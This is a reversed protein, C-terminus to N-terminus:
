VECEVIQYGWAVCLTQDEACQEAAEYTDFMAIDEGDQIAVVQNSSPNRSLLIFHSM